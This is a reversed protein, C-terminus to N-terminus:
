MSGEPIKITTKSYIKTGPFTRWVVPIYTCNGRQFIESGEQYNEWENRPIQFLFVLNNQITNLLFSVMNMM